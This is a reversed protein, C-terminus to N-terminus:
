GCGLSHIQRHLSDSQLQRRQRAVPLVVRPTSTSGRRVQPLTYNHFQPVRLVESYAVRRQEQPAM